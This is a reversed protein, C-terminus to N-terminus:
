KAVEAEKQRKIEKELQDACTEMATKVGHSFSRVLPTEYQLSGTRARAAEERWAIALLELYDTDTM